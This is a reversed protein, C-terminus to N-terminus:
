VVLRPLIDGISDVSAVVVVVVVVVVAVSAVICSWWHVVDQM